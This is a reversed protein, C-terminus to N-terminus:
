CMEASNNVFCGTKILYQARRVHTSSFGLLKLSRFGFLIHSVRSISPDLDLGGSYQSAFPFVPWYDGNHSRGPLAEFPGSFLNGTALLNYTM